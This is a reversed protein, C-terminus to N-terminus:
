WIETEECPWSVKAEWTNAVVTEASSSILNMMKKEAQNEAQSLSLELESLSSSKDPLM